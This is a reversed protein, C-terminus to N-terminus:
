SLNPFPLECAGNAGCVELVLGETDDVPRFGDFSELTREVREYPCTGEEIGDVFLSEWREGPPVPMWAQDSAVVFASGLGRVDERAFDSADSLAADLVMVYGIGVRADSVCPCQSPDECGRDCYQVSETPPELDTLPITVEASEPDFAARYAITPPTPSDDLVQIWAVVLQGDPLPGTGTPVLPLRLESNCVPPAAGLPPLDDEVPLDRDEPPSDVVSSFCASAFPAILFALILLRHIPM